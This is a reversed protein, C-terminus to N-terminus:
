CCKTTGAILRFRAWSRSSFKPTPKPRVRALLPAKTFDITPQVNQASGRPAERGPERRTRGLLRVLPLLDRFTDKAALKAKLLYPSARNPSGRLAVSWRNSWALLCLKEIFPAAASRPAILAYLRRSKTAGYRWLSAGPSLHFREARFGPPSFAWAATSRASIGKSPAQWAM